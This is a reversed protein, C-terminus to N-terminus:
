NSLVGPGLEPTEAKKDNYSFVVEGYMEKYRCRFQADERYKRIARNACDAAYRPGGFHMSTENIVASSFGRALLLMVLMHRSTIRAFAEVPSISILDSFIEATLICDNM